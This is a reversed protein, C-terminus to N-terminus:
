LLHCFLYKRYILKYVFVNFRLELTERVRWTVPFASTFRQFYSVFKPGPLLSPFRGDTLQVATPSEKVVIQAYVLDVAEGNAQRPIHKRTNAESYM